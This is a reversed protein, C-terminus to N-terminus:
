GGMAVIDELDSDRCIMKKYSILSEKTMVAVTKGLVEHLEGAKLDTPVKRWEGAHRDFLSIDEAATLDIDQGAYRLSLLEIDFQEDRYRAPGFVIWEKALEAVEKLSKKPVDLDVDNLQRKGGFVNAALGGVVVYPHGLATLLSTIWEFALKSDRM